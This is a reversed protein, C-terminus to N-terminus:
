HGLRVWDSFEAWTASARYGAERLSYMMSVTWRPELALWRSLGWTLCGLLLLGGFIVLALAGTSLRTSKQATKHVAVGVVTSSGTTPTHAPTATTPTATTPTATAPTTTPPAVTGPQAGSTPTVTAPTTAGATTSAPTTTAPTTAAPTSTAPTTSAPTTTTGHVRASPPVPIGLVNDTHTKTTAGATAATPIATALAALVLAGLAWLLTVRTTHQSRNAAGTM